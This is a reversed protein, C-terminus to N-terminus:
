GLYLPAENHRPGQPWSPQKTTDPKKNHRPPPPILFLLFPPSSPGALTGQQPLTKNYGVEKHRPEVTNQHEFM